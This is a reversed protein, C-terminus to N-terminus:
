VKDICEYVDLMSYETMEIMTYTWQKNAMPLYAQQSSTCALVHTLECQNMMSFPLPLVFNNRKHM